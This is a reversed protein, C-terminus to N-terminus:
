GWWGVISLSLALSLSSVSEWREYRPDQSLLLAASLRCSTWNPHLFLLLLINRPNVIAMLGTVPIPICSRAILLQKIRATTHASRAGLLFEHYTTTKKLIEYLIIKGRQRIIETVADVGGRGEGGRGERERNKIARITEMRTASTWARPKRVTDRSRAAGPVSFNKWPHNSQARARYLVPSMALIVLEKWRLPARQGYLIFPDSHIRIYSLSNVWNEDTRLPLPLQRKSLSYVARRPSYRPSWLRLDIGFWGSDSQWM